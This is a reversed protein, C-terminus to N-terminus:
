EENVFTLNGFVIFRNVDMEEARIEMSVFGLRTWHVAPPSLIFYVSFMVVWVASMWVAFHRNLLTTIM